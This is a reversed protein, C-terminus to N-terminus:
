GFADEDTDAAKRLEGGFVDGDKQLKERELKRKKVAKEEAGNGERKEAAKAKAVAVIDAKEPNQCRQLKKGVGKKFNDLWSRDEKEYLELIKACSELTALLKEQFVSEDVVDRGMSALEEIKFNLYNGAVEKDAVMFAGLWIQSPTFLFYVDTMQAADRLIGKCRDAAKGVRKEGGEVKLLREQLLAMMESVGGELGRMPHRVDLTFRLGQMLLFEPAKVDEESMGKLPAVFQSLPIYHHCAKTALFLACPILSRPHYTM